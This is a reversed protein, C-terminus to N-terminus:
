VMADFRVVTLECRLPDFVVLSERLGCSELLSV